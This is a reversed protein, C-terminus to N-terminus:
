AGLNIRELINKQAELQARTAAPNLRVAEAASLAAGFTMDDLGDGNTDVMETLDLAGNAFNLWAALLQEDLLEPMTGTNRNVFLVGHAQAFTAASRVENFVGSMFAVIELYCQLEATTFDIKGNGKYQHMWYGSARVLEANGAIIVIASDSASGGDDDAASFVIEYFCADSFAHTQTDSVDRPDVDPSPDPDTAPPNVLYATSVDPAPAGDDWDWSLTLDDSGPDTSDGTFDVPDGAHAIFAPTGNILTTGTEDITATPSVNGVTLNFSASHTGGDDDTVTVTITFVGDDGYQFTDTVTGQDAPPGETTVAPTPASTDSAPTGWDISATYTDGWGPDSFTANVTVTDGEQIATVQGSAIAVTPAVNTVNLQFTVTGSEGKDDTATITVTQNQDPGDNTGFSWSWNGGGTDTVTGISASLTVPDNTPDTYDGTNSATQGENVTVTANDTTVSPPVNDAQLAGLLDLRQTTVSSGGSTYTIDVGTDQMNQLLDAITATPYAERLVAFAGTVHPAAMSTGCKGGFTDDPVASTMGIEGLVPDNICGPAFLDLLTGINSFSSITDDDNTSGVTVATSICGPAGVAANLSDNGSSIVTAIGAALLADIPTKRTDSDCAATMTGGGLSMNAAAITMTADLALVRQLGLIQDSPFTRVCPADGPDGGCQSDMNFRTFVQIAIINAGPAVGNGPEGTIGNTAGAAIGAVHTGHDCLNNTGDLCTATEADAADGTTQNNTGDPCLSVGGGAGAANSFCAQSVIRAGDTGFFDHDADIGTDLIAVTQGSGDWGLDQVDDGNIVPLTLNLAPPQPIDESINVVWRSAALAALADPGATMALLPFLDFRIRVSADLGDLEHIVVDQAAITTLEVIVPLPGEAAAKEILAATASDFTATNALATAITSLISTTLIALAAAIRM